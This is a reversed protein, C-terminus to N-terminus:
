SIVRLDPAPREPVPVDGIPWGLYLLAVLQDDPDLGCLERVEPAEVVAGTGWYSALGAATAGLLLNQVGATVADRNERHRLPDPDAASAVALMLPARLYKGRANAVKEPRAGRAEELAALVEGLRVRADGVLAVFRWPWTRKHNPAWTALRCLRELLEVPVPREPDIRLNTRRREVLAELSRLEDMASIM